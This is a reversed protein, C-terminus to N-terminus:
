KGNAFLMNTMNQMVLKLNKQYQYFYENYLVKILGNVEVVGHRPAPVYKDSLAKFNSFHFYTLVQDENDYHVIFKKAEKDYKFQQTTLNWPAGHGLGSDDLALAEYNRDHILELYKQDGCKQYEEPINEAIQIVADRWLRLSDFGSQYECNFHVIGVNFEGVDPNYPIRHRVLGVTQTRLMSDFINRWSDFFFCDADVYTIEMCGLQEVCYYTFFSAMAWIQEIEQAPKRIKNSVNIAEASPQLAILDVYCPDNMTIEGVTVPVINVFKEQKKLQELVTFTQLDLCLYYLIFEEDHKFMSQYLALGQPLFDYDSVTCFSRIKKGM